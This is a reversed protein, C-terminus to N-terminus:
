PLSLPALGSERDRRMRWSGAVKLYIRSPIGLMPRRKAVWDTLEHWNSSNLVNVSLSISPSLMKTTHWWRHPIFVMEGPALVFRIAKAKAFLPFRALDVHDLDPIQTHNPRAKSPYLFEEQDPGYLIFRKEGYIQLLFAHTAMGDYHLYPFAGGKGGIYIEMAGGRNLSRQVSKLLFHESMWNPSLYSPLSDIDNVLSPFMEQFVQNRFYPAPNTEDSAIVRDIFSSMTFDGTGRAGDEISFRMDAFERKFFEPSWRSLARWGRLADTIVVPKHPYLYQEAFEASSLSARRDVQDNMIIEV